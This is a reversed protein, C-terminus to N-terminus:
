HGQIVKFTVKATQVKRVGIGRSVHCSNVLMACRARDRQLLLAEQKDSINQGVKDIKLGL